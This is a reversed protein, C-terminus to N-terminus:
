GCYTSFKEVSLVLNGYFISFQKGIVGRHYHDLKDDMRYLRELRTYNFRDSIENLKSKDYLAVFILINSYDQVDVMEVMEFAELITDVHIKNSLEKGRKTLESSTNKIQLIAGIVGFYSDILGKFNRYADMLNSNLLNAIGDINNKVQQNAWNYNICSFDHILSSFQHCATSTSCTSINLNFGSNSLVESIYEKDDDSLLMHTRNLM